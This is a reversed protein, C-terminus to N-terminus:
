CFSSVSQNIDGTLTMLKAIKQNLAEHCNLIILWFPNCIIRAGADFFHHIKAPIDNNVQLPPINASVSFQGVPDINLRRRCSTDHFILYFIQQGMNHCNEQQPRDSDGVCLLTTLRIRTSLLIRWTLLLFIKVIVLPVGCNGLKVFCPKPAVLQFPTAYFHLEKKKIKNLCQTLNRVESRGSKTALHKNILQM